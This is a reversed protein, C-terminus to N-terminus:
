RIQGERLYDWQDPTSNEIVAQHPCQFTVLPVSARSSREARLEIGGVSAWPYRRDLVLNKRIYVVRLEDKSCRETCRCLLFCCLRRM